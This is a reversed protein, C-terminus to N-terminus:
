SAPGTADASVKEAEGEGAQQAEFFYCLRQPPRLYDLAAVSLAAPKVSRRIGANPLHELDLVLAEHRPLGTDHVIVRPKLPRAANVSVVLAQREDNLQVVSGPPYVGIMRVFASLVAGDFRTKLQSFILALAEHPTLVTNSRVPNCLGDYRNVLALIRAGLCMGDQKLRDPFGSGDVMEHHQAIAQLAGRSVGMASALRVSHAVHSQYARHEAPAYNADAVRLREALEVKGIDHLFAALGLDQLEQAPLGMARGLLLCLVAVNVPHMALKDGAAEGLLRIAVDGQDQIQSRLGQVLSQSIRAAETPRNHLSDLTARYQQAAESFRQACLAQSQREAACRDARQQRLRAQEQRAADTVRAAAATADAQLEPAGPAAPDSKAPVYRIRESGLDRLVAIQEPTSIKFRSTPFPHAMWGVDLDVYLGMRLDRVSVFDFTDKNM